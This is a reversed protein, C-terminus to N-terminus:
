TSIKKFFQSYTLNSKICKRINELNTQRILKDNALYYLQSDLTNLLIKRRTLDQTYAAFLGKNFLQNLTKNTVQKQKTFNDFMKKNYEAISKYVQNDVVFTSLHDLLLYQRFDSDLEYLSPKSIEEGLFQGIPKKIDTIIIKDNNTPDIPEIIIEKNPVVLKESELDKFAKNLEDQLESSDNKESSKIIPVPLVAITKTSVLKKNLKPPKESIGKNKFILTVHPYKGPIINPNCSELYYLFSYDYLIPYKQILDFSVQEYFEPNNNKHFNYHQKQDVNLIDTKKRTLGFDTLAIDIIKGQSDKKILINAPTIDYHIYGLEHIKKIQNRM